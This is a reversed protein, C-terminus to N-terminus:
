YLTENNDETEWNDSFLVACPVTEEELLALLAEFWFWGVKFSTWSLWDSVVVTRPIFLEVQLLDVSDGSSSRWYGTSVDRDIHLQSDHSLCYVFEKYM